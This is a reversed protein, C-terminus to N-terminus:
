RLGVLHALLYLVLLASALSLLAPILNFLWHRLRSWASRWSSDVGAKRAQGSESEWPDGPEQM